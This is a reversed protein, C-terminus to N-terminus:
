SGKPKGKLCTFVQQDPLHPYTDLYGRGLTPQKRKAEREFGSWFHMLFCGWKGAATFTWTAWHSGYERTRPTDCAGESRASGRSSGAGGGCLVFLCVWLRPSMFWFQSNHTQPHPSTQLFSEKPSIAWPKMHKTLFVCCQPISRRNSTFVRLIPYCFCPKM